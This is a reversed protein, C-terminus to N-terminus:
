KTPISNFSTPTTLDECTNQFNAAFLLCSDLTSEFNDDATKSAQVNYLGLLFKHVTKM